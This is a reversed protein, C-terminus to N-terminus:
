VEIYKVLGGLRFEKACTPLPAPAPARV